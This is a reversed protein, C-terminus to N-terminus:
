DNHVCTEADPQLASTCGVWNTVIVEDGPAWIGACPWLFGFTNLGLGEVTNYASLGFDNLAMGVIKVDGVPNAM